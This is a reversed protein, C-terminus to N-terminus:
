YYRYEEINTKVGHFINLANGVNLKDIVKVKDLISIKDNNLYIINKFRVYDKILKKLRINSEDNHPMINKSNRPVFTYPVKVINNHRQNMGIISIM